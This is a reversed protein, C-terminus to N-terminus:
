PAPPRRLEMKGCDNASQYEAVFAERTLRGDVRYTGLGAPLIMAGNLKLSGDSALRAAVRHTYDGFRVVGWGACYRFDYYGPRGASRQVICWLPRHDGNFVSVWAGQWPGDANVPPRVMATSSAAFGRAYSGTGCSSLPLVIAAALLILRVPMVLLM